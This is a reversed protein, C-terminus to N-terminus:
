RILWIQRYVLMIASAVVLATGGMLALAAAAGVHEAIFGIGLDGIPTLGADIMVISLIRGRLQDPIAEQIIVREVIRYAQSVVGIFFMLMLSLWFLRSFSLLLVGGGFLGVCIAFLKGKPLPYRGFVLVLSGCVSGCAATSLLLGFGQPGVDLVEKAFVPMLTAYPYCFIMPVMGLLFVGLVLPHQRLFRLAEGIGSAVTFDGTSEQQGSRSRILLLTGIVALYSGANILILTSVSWVTLLVGAIAPGAIRATNLTASFISVASTMAAAPVLNPIFAHRAPIELALFMGRVLLIALLVYLSRVEWLVALGLATTSVMAGAHTVILLKRRDWRDAAVGGLVSFFLVPILRAFEVLGVAFPSQTLSFVFWNFAVRDFWEGTRSLFSGLLFWNYNAYRFAYVEGAEEAQEGSVYPDNPKMKM